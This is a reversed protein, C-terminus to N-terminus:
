KKASLSDHKCPPICNIPEMRSQKVLHRCAKNYKVRAPPTYFMNVVVAGGGAGMQVWCILGHISTSFVFVLSSLVHSSSWDQLAGAHRYMAAASTFVNVWKLATTTHLDTLVLVLM